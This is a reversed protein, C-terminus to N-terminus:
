AVTRLTEYEEPSRYGIASHMRNRNYFTEVYDFISLRAEERTHFDFHYLWETKLTHFFSEAVANDVSRYPRSM